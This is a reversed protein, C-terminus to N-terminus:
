HITLLELHLILTVSQLTQYQHQYSISFLGTLSLREIHCSVLLCIDGAKTLDPKLIRSCFVSAVGLLFRFIELLHPWRGSVTSRRGGIRPQVTASGAAGRHTVYCGGSSRRCRRRWCDGCGNDIINGTQRWRQEFEIWEVGITRSRMRVRRRIKAAHRLQRIQTKHRTTEVGDRSTIHLIEVRLSIVSSSNAPFHFSDQRDCRTTQNRM